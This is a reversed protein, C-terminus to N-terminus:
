EGQSEDDTVWYLSRHDDFTNGDTALHSGLGWYNNVYINKIGCLQWSKNGKDFHDLATIRPIVFLADLQSGSQIFHNSNYLAGFGQRM